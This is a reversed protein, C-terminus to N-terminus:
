AVAKGVLKGVDLFTAYAIVGILLLWGAATLALHWRTTRPTLKELFCLFLKGGDLAPIPMLNLIALNLGLVSAFHLLKASNLGAYKGGQVVIGVIGSLHEPTSIVSPIAQLIHGLYACTTSVPEILLSSLSLGTMVVSLVVFLLWSLLINAAPGGLAFIARRWVPISFFANQDDLRPIIYGGIPILSVTYLTQTGQIKLISPGFGISFRAVPIKTWRAALFHGLEHVLILLGVIFVIVIYSM